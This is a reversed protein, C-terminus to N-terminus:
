DVFTKSLIPLGLLNTKVTTVIVKSMRQNCSTNLMEKVIMFNMLKLSM